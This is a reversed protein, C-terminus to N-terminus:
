FSISDAAGTESDASSSDTVSQLSSHSDMGLESGAGVFSNM